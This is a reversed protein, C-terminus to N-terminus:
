LVDPLPWIKMLAKGILESSPVPGFVRSDASDNRNDGMMWWADEPVTVPGFADTTVEEPLWPEDLLQGDVLLYGDRAEVTQGPLAVVRKILVDPQGPAPPGPHHFVVVDGTTVDEPGFGAVRVAVRDGVALTPLMSESPIHYVHVVWLRVFLAALVVAILPLFTRRSRPAVM